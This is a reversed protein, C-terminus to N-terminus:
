EQDGRHPQLIPLDLYVVGVELFTAPLHAPLKEEIVPLGHVPRQFLARERKLSCINEALIYRQQHYM